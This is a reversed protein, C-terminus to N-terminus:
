ISGYYWLGFCGLGSHMAKKNTPFELSMLQAKRDPTMEYKGHSVVYGFFVVVRIGFRSKEMKLILGYKICIAQITDWKTWLDEMDTGLILMNDHIVITWADCEMFIETMIKQVWLSATKLGEPVFCPEFLGWETLVALWKASAPDLPFQHFANTLDLDIFVCFRAAKELTREVDLSPWAPRKVFKNLYVYSVCIRFFPKTAKTAVVMPSSWVSNSPVWMYSLLRNVEGLIAERQHPRCYAVYALHEAPVDDSLELTMPTVNLGKWVLPNFIRYTSEELLIERGNVRAALFETTCREDILRIFTDRREEETLGTM